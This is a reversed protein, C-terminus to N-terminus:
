AGAVGPEQWRAAAEDDSARAEVWRAGAPTLEKKWFPARTKLYDMVFECAAFADGRHASAVAVLVIADGPALAGVRHVVRIDLLDWRRGAEACIEELARETMGPYHELTMRHVDSGENLDRVLGVFTAVAGVDRRSATLAAIEQGADFPAEQVRVHAV